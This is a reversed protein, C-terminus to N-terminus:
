TLSSLIGGVLGKCVIFDVAAIAALPLFYRLGYFLKGESIVGILISVFFTTGILIVYTMNEVFAPDLSSEISILSYNFESFSVKTIQSKLTTLKVLFQISISLLLPVGILVIFLIFIVYMRTSSELEQRLEQTERIDLASTELLRALHGGSIMGTTFLGVTRKLIKSDIRENLRGFVMVFSETGLSRSALIRIEDELPGFEPRSSEVFAAIPTMGARLNAAILLLFDPLIAEVRKRRGEIVYYLHFYFIVWILIFTALGSLISYYLMVNQETLDISIVGGRLLSSPVTGGVIAFILAVLMRKGLWISVDEDVGAYSLLTEVIKKHGKPVMSSCAKFVGQMM